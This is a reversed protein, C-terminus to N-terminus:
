YEKVCFAGPLHWMVKQVCDEGFVEESLGSVQSLLEKLRPDNRAEEGEASISCFAHTELGCPTVQRLVPVPLANKKQSFHLCTPSPAHSEKCGLALFTSTSLIYLHPCCPWSDSDSDSDYICIYIYIYMYIYIAARREGSSELLESTSGLVEWLHGSGGLAGWSSGLAAQLEGSSGM